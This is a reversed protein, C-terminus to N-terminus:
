TILIWFDLLKLNLYILKKVYCLAAEDYLLEQNKQQCDHQSLHAVQQHM